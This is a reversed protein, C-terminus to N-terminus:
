LNQLYKLFCYQQNNIVSSFGYRYNDNTKCKFSKKCEMKLMGDKYMYNINLNKCNQKVELLIMENWIFM